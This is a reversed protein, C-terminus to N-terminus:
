GQFVHIAESQLFLHSPKARGAGRAGLVEILSLLRSASFPKIRSIQAFDPNFEIKEHFLRTAICSNQRTSVADRQKKAEYGIEQPM